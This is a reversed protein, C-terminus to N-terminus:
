ILQYNRWMDLGEMVSGRESRFATLPDDTARKIARGILSNAKQAAITKGKM